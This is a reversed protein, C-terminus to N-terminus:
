CKLHCEIWSVFFQFVITIVCNEKRAFWRSEYSVFHITQLSDYLVVCNLELFFFLLDLVTYYVKESVYDRGVAVCCYVACVCVCM